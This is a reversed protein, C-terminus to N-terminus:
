SREHTTGTNVNHKHLLRANAVLGRTYLSEWTHAIAIAIREHAEASGLDKFFAAQIYDYCKICAAAPLLLTRGLDYIVFGDGHNCRDKIKFACPLGMVRDRLGTQDPPLTALRLAQAQLKLYREQHSM